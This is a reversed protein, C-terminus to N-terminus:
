RKYTKIKESYVNSNIPQAVKPHFSLLTNNEDIADLERRFSEPNISVKKNVEDKSYYIADQYTVNYKVIGKVPKSIQYSILDYGSVALKSKSLNQQANSVSVKGFLFLFLLLPTIKSILANKM